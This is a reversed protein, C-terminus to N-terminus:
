YCTEVSELGGLQIPPPPTQVPKAGFSCNVFSTFEGLCEFLEQMWVGKYMKIWEIVHPNRPREHIRAEFNEFMDSHNAGLNFRGGSLRDWTAIDM